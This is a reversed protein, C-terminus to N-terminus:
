KLAQAFYYIYDELHNDNFDGVQKLIAPNNDRFHKGQAPDEYFLVAVEDPTSMGIARHPQIFVERRYREPISLTNKRIAELDQDRRGPSVNNYHSVKLIYARSQISATSNDEAFNQMDGEILYSDDSASRIATFFDRGDNNDLMETECSMVVFRNPKEIDLDGNEQMIGGHRIVDCKMDGSSNQLDLLAQSFAIDNDVQFLGVIGVNSTNAFSINSVMTLGVFTAATLSIRKIIKKM